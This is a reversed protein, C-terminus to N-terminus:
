RNSSGSRLSRNAARKMQAQIPPPVERAEMILSQQAHHKAKCQPCEFNIVTGSAWVKRQKPDQVPLELRTGCPCRGVLVPVVIRKEAEKLRIKAM